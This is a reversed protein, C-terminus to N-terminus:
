IIENNCLEEITVPVSFQLSIMVIHQPRQQVVNEFRFFREKDMELLCIAVKSLILVSISCYEPRILDQLFNEPSALRM